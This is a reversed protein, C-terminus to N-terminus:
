TERIDRAQGAEKQQADRLATHEPCPCIERLYPWTYIGTAHGDAFRINLAYSGVLSVDQASRIDGIAHKVKDPTVGAEGVGHVWPRCEACPCKRRLYDFDYQSIHGDGWKIQLIRQKLDLAIEEPKRPNNQTM